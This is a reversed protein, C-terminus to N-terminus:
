IDLCANLLWNITNDNLVLPGDKRAVNYISCQYLLHESTQQEAGCDSVATTTLGWRYMLSGLRRIGTRLHNLRVWALRSLKHGKPLPGVDTVFSYLRSINKTWNEKWTNQIWISANTNQALLGQAEIVFPKRSKPRRKTMPRNFYNHLTHGPELFQRALSLTAAKRRLEAPPNGSFVLLYQNPTPKLCGTVMSLADIIPRDLLHTHASRSWIPACHEATSYVIALTTIRLTTACAGWGAGALRGILAVRPTLKKYLTEFHHRYTLNRDMTIGLYTPTPNYPLGNEDVIINLERKGERSNLHFATSVTKSKNLKLRWNQLYLSLTAM